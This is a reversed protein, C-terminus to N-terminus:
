ERRWIALGPAGWALMGLVAPPTAATTGEVDMKSSADAPTDTTQGAIIAKGPITEYAYGTLFANVATSNVHVSLRAWGFHTQGNIVFKLALYKNQVNVWRGFVYHNGACTSSFRALMASSLGTSFNIKAGQNRAAANEFFGDESKFGEVLNGAVKGLVSLTQRHGSSRNYLVDRLVFDAVGDNNLDLTCNQNTSFAVNAKTYVVSAEAPLAGALMGAAVASAAAAYAALNRDLNSNIRAAARPQPSKRLPEAM